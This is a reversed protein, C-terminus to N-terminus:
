NGTSIQENMKQSFNLIGFRGKSTIHGKTQDKLCVAHMENQIEISLPKM